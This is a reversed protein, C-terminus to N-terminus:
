TKILWIGCVQGPQVNSHPQDGGGNPASFNHNHNQNEGGTTGTKFTGNTGNLLGAGGGDIFAVFNHTHAQNELGTTGSITHSPTQALTLTISQAGGAAGMAQGNIGSGAVTIRTGTGDYAIPLRGRLDPVAFTTIGNGGFQGQLRASLAVYDSYNYTSGDCYLYPQVTCAAMWAPVATEGAIFELKGPYNGMGNVFRVNTGDNFVETVSGQPVGVVQGANVAALTVVFNGTTFNAIYQRGPLPLTVRVNASLTGTLNIISNQAQTPGPTPTIAAGVPSSLTINANSLSVTAVGGLYGDIAVMDPNIAASGWTGVLDGTNPVILGINSTNPEAM